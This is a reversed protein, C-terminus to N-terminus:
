LKKRVLFADDKTERKFEQWKNNILGYVEFHSSIETLYTTIGM